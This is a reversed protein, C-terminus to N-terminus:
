LVKAVIDFDKKEKSAKKLETTMADSIVQSSAFYQTAYKKLTSTIASDQKEQTSKKGSFAYPNDGVSQGLPSLKDTSYLAWSSKYYM